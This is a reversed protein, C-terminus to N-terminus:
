RSEKGGRLAREAAARCPGPWVPFFLLRREGRIRRLMSEAGEGSLGGLAEIAPAVWPRTRRAAALKKLVALILGATMEGLRPSPRGALNESLMRAVLPRTGGEVRTLARLIVAGEWEPPSVQLGRLAWDGLTSNKTHKILVALLPGLSPVAIPFARPSLRRSRLAALRVLRGAGRKASSPDVAHLQEVLGDALPGGDDVAGVLLENLLHPWALDV